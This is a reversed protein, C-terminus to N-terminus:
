AKRQTPKQRDPLYSTPGWKRTKPAFLALLALLSRPPASYHSWDFGPSNRDHLLSYLIRGHLHPHSTTGHPLTSPLHLHTFSTGVETGLVTYSYNNTLISPQICHRSLHNLYM